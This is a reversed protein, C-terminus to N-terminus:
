RKQVTWGPTAEPLENPEYPRALPNEESHDRGCNCQISGPYQYEERSNETCVFISTVPRIVCQDKQPGLHWPLQGKLELGEGTVPYHEGASELRGM